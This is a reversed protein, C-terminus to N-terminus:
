IQKLGLQCFETELSSWLVVVRCCSILDMAEEDDNVSELIMRVGCETVELLWSQRTSGVVVKSGSVLRGTILVRM